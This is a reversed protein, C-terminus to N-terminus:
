PNFVESESSKAAPKPPPPPPAPKPAPPPTEVRAVPAPKPPPPERKPEPKEPKPETKPTGKGPKTKPPPVPAVPPAVGESGSSVARGLEAVFVDAVKKERTANQGVFLLVEFSAHLEERVEFPKQGDGAFDEAIHDERDRGTKALAVVRAPIESLKKAREVEGHATAEVAALVDEPGEHHMTAAEVVHVDTGKVELRLVGSSLHDKTAQEIAADDVDPLLKLAEILPKRVSKRDDPWSAEAVQAAHVENFYADFRPSGPGYLQGARVRSPSGLVSCGPAGLLVGLALALIFRMKM